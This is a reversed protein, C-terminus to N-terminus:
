NGIFLNNLLRLSDLNNPANEITVIIDGVFFANAYTLRYSLSLYQSETLIDFHEVVVSSPPAPPLDAEKLVDSLTKGEIAGYDVSATAGYIEEVKVSPITLVIPGNVWGTDEHPSVTAEVNGDQKRVLKDIKVQKEDIGLDNARNVYLVVLGLPTLGRLEERTVYNM